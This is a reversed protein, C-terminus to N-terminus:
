ICREENSTTEHSGSVGRMSYSKHGLLYSKRLLERHKVKGGGRVEAVTQVM